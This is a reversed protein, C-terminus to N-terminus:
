HFLLNGPQIKEGTVELPFEEIQLEWEDLISKTFTNNKFAKVLDQCKSIREFPDPQLTVDLEKMLNFDGRQQETLGTMVCLEPILFIENVTENRKEDLHVLLPQQENDISVNYQSQYYDM